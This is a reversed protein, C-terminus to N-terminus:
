KHARAAARARDLAARTAALPEPAGTATRIALAHELIPVAETARGLTVLVDARGELTEALNGDEGTTALIALAEDFKALSETPKGRLALASALGAMAVGTHQHRPGYSGSAVRIARESTAQADDLKGATREVEALNILADALDPSNGEHLREALRIARADYTRAEDLHHSEFAVVGLNTVIDFVAPQDPGGASEVIALAHELERRADDLDGRDIALSGLNTLVMGVERSDRGKVSDFIALAREFYSRAAAADGDELAVNGLNNLSDAVEPAGPGYAATRIALARDYVHRAEDRRNSQRNLIGVTNLADAYTPTDTGFLNGLMTLAREADARADDFRGDSRALDARALLTGAFLASAGLGREGQEIARNAYALAQAHHGQAALLNAMVLELLIRAEIPVGPSHARAEFLGGLELATESRKPDESIDLVLQGAAEAEDVLDGCTAALLMAERATTESRPDHNAHQITALNVLSSALVQTHGSARAAEVAREVMELAVAHHGALNRVHASVALAGATLSRLYSVMDTPPASFSAAVYAPNSCNMIAPLDGLASEAHDITAADDAILSDVTVVARSLGDDLCRMRQDFLTDSQTEHVRADQCAEMAGVQWRWMWRDVTLSARVFSALAYPRGSDDFAKKLAAQREPTWVARASDGTRACPDAAGSRTAVTAVIAGAVVIGAAILGLGRRRPPAIASLLDQMGAFRAEPEGSLGRMIARRLRAPVQKAAKPLPELEGTTIRASLELLTTGAFPREGYLAEYLAVCFAFQDSHATAVDGAFQEPAMYTPTGMIAGTRTLNESLPTPAAPHPSSGPVAAVAPQSRRRTSVLGFDTVRVRGDEGLLVNDPKFDRHVLGAAHAAALGRGAQAFM